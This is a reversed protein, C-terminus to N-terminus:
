PWVCRFGVDDYRAQPNATNRFSTRVYVSLSYHGMGGWGGGRVVKSQEGYEKDNFDNGPYPQYWDATWEQANGAMDMAGYPSVGEKLTGVPVTGGYEGLTNVKKTDFDGGWPFKRGDTGRAAKEWEAETPLRKGKWKCYSDAEHWTVLVVPHEDLGQPYAGGAWHPPPATGTAKVFEQFQRNTVETADIHFAKLDVKREPRENAYWPRRDGYQVAKAEKDVENSGMIFEGKPVKVMGEPPKECGALLAIASIAALGGLAKGRSFM